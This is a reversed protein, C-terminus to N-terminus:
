RQVLFEPSMLALHVTSLVKINDNVGALSFVLFNRLTTRTDSSMTGYFLRVNIEDLFLNYANPGTSNAGSVLPTLDSIVHYASTTPLTFTGSSTSYGVWLRNWQENASTMATTENAIQFEPAYIGANALEGPPLYDPEYFNFVTPAGLPRQALSDQPNRIGMQIEGNVAAPATVGFARWTATLRLLPERLKGYPAMPDAPPVRAEDDLLIARVVAALDGRVNHGNDEFVTAVREIYAPSPHSTVFRQILQRSVFPATNPHNFLYDLTQDIQSLCYAHCRNLALPRQGAVQGPDLAPLGTNSTHSPNEVGCVDPSAAIVAGGIITKAGYDMHTPFCAMPFYSSPGSTFGTYDPYPTGASPTCNTNSPLGTTPNTCTYSWGTFVRALETIDNQTYTPIPDPGALVPSFDLNREILGVTFLQMIERAYNEDPASPSTAAGPTVKRNRWHSLYRGMMPSKTVEELLTRYNGFANRALIDWYESVGFHDGSLADSRDSVVLIQSLAYAMRQRLQDPGFAATHFWRDVRQSQGIAPPAPRAALMDLYARASTPATAIQQDIWGDYSNSRFQGISARSPGFTAQTLFRAAEADTAPVFYKAEFGATHGGFITDDGAHAQLASGLLLSFALVRLLSM